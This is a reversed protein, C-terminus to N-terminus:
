GPVSPILFVYLDLDLSNRTALEFPFLPIKFYTETFVILGAENLLTRDITTTAVNGRTVM